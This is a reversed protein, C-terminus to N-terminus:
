RRFEGGKVGAIFADWEADTFHLEPGGPERRVYCGGTLAWEVSVVDSAIDHAVFQAWELDTFELIPSGDGLKSDRVLVRRTDSGVEVCAGTSCRTSRRWSLGPHRMVRVM